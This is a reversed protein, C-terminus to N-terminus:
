LKLSSLLANLAIESFERLTQAHAKLTLHELMWGEGETIAYFRVITLKNMYWRKAVLFYEARCFLIHKFYDFVWRLGVALPM